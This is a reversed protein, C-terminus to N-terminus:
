RIRPIAVPNTRRHIPTCTVAVGMCEPAHHCTLEFDINPFGIEAGSSGLRPVPSERLRPQRSGTSWDTRLPHAPPFRVWSYLNQLDDNSDSYTDSKLYTLTM